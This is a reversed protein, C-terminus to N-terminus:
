RWARLVMLLIVSTACAFVMLMTGGALSALAGVVVPGVASLLTFVISVRSVDEALRAPNAHETAAILGLTLFGTIGGGMLFMLVAFEHGAPSAVSAALACTATVLAALAAAVKMGWTDVMWGLLFQLLLSGMGFVSLLWAAESSDFGRERAYVPFVGLIAGETIGGIGALIAGLTLFRKLLTLWSRGPRLAPAPVADEALEVSRAAQLPIAAALSLLGGALFSPWGTAGLVAILAPGAVAAIAILTEHFGVIRGRGETPMIGFLWTENGIWRFGMGFGCVAAPAAWWFVPLAPTVMLAVASLVVGLLVTRSHHLRRVAAPAMLLGLLMGVWLASSIAGIQWAPLGQAELALPYLSFGIGYQGIQSFTSVLNLAVVGRWRQRTDPTIPGAATTM